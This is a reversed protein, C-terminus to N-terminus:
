DGNSAKDQLATPPLDFHKRLDKEFKSSLMKIAAPQQTAIMDYEAGDELIKEQMAKIEAVSELREEISLTPPKEGRILWDVSVGTLESCEHLQEYPIRGYYGWNNIVNKNCDIHIALASKKIGYADAMRQVMAKVQTKREELPLDKFSM